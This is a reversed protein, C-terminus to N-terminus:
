LDEERGHPTPRNFTGNPPPRSIVASVVTVGIGVLVWVRDAFAEEVGMDSPHDHFLVWLTDAAGVDRIQIVVGDNDPLMSVVELRDDEHAHDEWGEDRSESPSIPETTEDVGSNQPDEENLLSCETDVRQCMPKTILWEVVAVRGTIVNDSGDDSEALTVVVEMVFEWRVVPISNFPMLIVRGLPRDPDPLLEAKCIVELLELLILDLLTAELLELLLKVLLSLSKVPTNREFLEWDDVPIGVLSFGLVASSENSNGTDDVIYGVKDLIMRTPLCQDARTDAFVCGGNEVPTDVVM